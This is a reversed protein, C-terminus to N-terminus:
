LLLLDRLSYLTCNLRVYISLEKFRNPIKCIVLNEKIILANLFVSVINYQIIELNFQTAIVIVIRFFQAALTVAYTSSLM